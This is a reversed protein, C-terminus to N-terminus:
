LDDLVQRIPIPVFLPRSDIKAVIRNTLMRLGSQRSFRSGVGNRRSSHRKGAADVENLTVRALEGLTLHGPEATETFAPPDRHVLRPRSPSDHIGDQGLLPVHALRESVREADRLSAVEHRTPSTHPPM